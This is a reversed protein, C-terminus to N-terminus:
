PRLINGLEHAIVQQIRDEGLFNKVLAPLESEVLVRDTGVEMVGAISTGFFGKAATFSFSMRNGNWEKSGDKITIGGPPNQVLDELFGDIRRIAEQEGLSHPQEIRM